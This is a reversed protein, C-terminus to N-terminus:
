GRELALKIDGWDLDRHLGPAIQEARSILTDGAAWLADRQAADITGEDRAADLDRALTDDPAVQPLTAMAILNIAAASKAVALRGWASCDVAAQRFAEGSLRRRAPIDRVNMRAAIAAKHLVDREAAVVAEIVEPPERELRSRDESLKTGAALRTRTAAEAAAARRADLAAAYGLQLPDAEIEAKIATRDM